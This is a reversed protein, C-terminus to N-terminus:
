NVKFEGVLIGLRNAVERLEESSAATQNAGDVTQEAFDRVNVVNRNIEESVSSQEEAASAIQQTMQTIHDVATTIAELAAGAEAAKQVSQNSSETGQEMAQVANRAGQQVRDIMAHIEETSTQTRSALTRVEDAVVAFGRGQEGARAAEIAANLALLNTQEAINKIVDLVSSIEKSHTELQKIVESARQMQQSLDNIADITAHVVRRGGNAQQDANRTAEAASNANRAVEQVTISMENMATAVQEIEANQRNLNGRTDSATAASSNAAQVVQNVASIVQSVLASIKELMANMDDAISQMEDRTDLRVQRTLDGEAMAHVVDKIRVLSGTVGRYFGFFLYGAGLLLALSSAFNLAVIGRQQSARQALLNDLVPLSQDMLALTASIATTGNSFYNDAALSINGGHLLQNRTLVSFKGAAERATQEV